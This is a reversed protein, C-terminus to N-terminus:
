ESRRGPHRKRLPNDGALGPIPLPYRDLRWGMKCAHDIELAARHGRDDGAKIDPCMRQRAHLYVACLSRKTHGIGIEKGPRRTDPASPGFGPAIHRQCMAVDLIAPTNAHSLHGVRQPRAPWMAGTARLGIMHQIHHEGKLLSGDLTM